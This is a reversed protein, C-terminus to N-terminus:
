EKYQWWSGGRRGRRWTFTCGCRLRGTLSIPSPWRLTTIPKLRNGKKPGSFSHQRRAGSCLLAKLRVTLNYWAKFPMVTDRGAAVVSRWPSPPFPISFASLSKSPESFPPLRRGVVLVPGTAPWPTVAVAKKFFLGRPRNSTIAALLSFSALALSPSLM